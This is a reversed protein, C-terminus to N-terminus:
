LRLAGENSDRREIYDKENMDDEFQRIHVALKNVTLQDACPPTDMLKKTCAPCVDFTSLDPLTLVGFRYSEPDHITSGCIDCQRVDSM